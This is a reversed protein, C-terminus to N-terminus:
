RLEESCSTFRCMRGSTCHLADISAGCGVASNTSLSKRASGVIRTSHFESIADGLFKGKGAVAAPHDSLEHGYGYLAPHLRNSIQEFCGDRGDRAQEM